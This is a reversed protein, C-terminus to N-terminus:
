EPEARVVVVEPLVLGARQEAAERETPSKPLRFGDNGSLRVERLFYQNGYRYFTLRPTDDAESPGDPQSLVITGQRLGRILFADTHGPLRSVRYGDRPLVTSGVRFAFPVATVTDSAQASAGPASGLVLLGAIALIRSAYTKM